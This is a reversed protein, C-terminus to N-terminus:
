LCVRSGNDNPGDEKYSMVCTPTGSSLSDVFSSFIKVTGTGARSIARPSGSWVNGAIFRSHHATVNTGSGTVSLATRTAATSVTVATGTISATGGGVAVGWASSGGAAEFASNEITLTMGSNYTVLAIADITVDRAAIRSDRITLTGANNIFIGYADAGQGAYISTDFLSVVSGLVALGMAVDSCHSTIVVNRLSFSQNSVAAVGAGNALSSVNHITIDRLETFNGAVVAAAGYGTLASGRTGLITTAHPGSGEIDVFDRMVLQTDGIEYTGPELKLLFRNTSSATTISALAALLAAGSATQTAGPSVVVTKKYTAKGTITITGGATSVSNTGAGAITVAGAIGNVSPVGGTVTAATTQVTGDPFKFGRETSHVFGRASIATFPPLANVAVPLEKPKREAQQAAAPFVSIALLFLASSVPLRSM